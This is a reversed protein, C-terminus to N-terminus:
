PGRYMEYGAQGLILFIVIVSGTISVFVAAKAIRLAARASEDLPDSIGAFLSRVVQHFMEASLVLTLSLILITWQQLTIQLVVSAAITVSSLFFYVFFVSDGRVGQMMGREVDVLRQRWASRAARPASIPDPGAPTKWTEAMNM